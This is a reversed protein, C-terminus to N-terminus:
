TSAPTCNKALLCPPPPQKAKRRLIEERLEEYQQRTQAGVTEPTIAAGMLGAVVFTGHVTIKVVNGHEVVRTTFDSSKLDGKLLRSRIEQKPSLEIRRVSDLSIHLLGASAHSKQIVDFKDGDRNAIRSADVNSLIQAMHDFDTLVSWVEDADAAVTLEASVTFTSGDKDVEVTIDEGAFQAADTTLPSAILAAAAILRLAVRTM